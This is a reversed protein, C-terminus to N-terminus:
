TVTAKRELKGWGVHTGRVAAVTSKVVVYYMFQRYAFRQLPMWLLLKWDEKRELVFALVGAALDVVVFLAYFFLTRNLLDASYEAPHQNRQLVAAVLSALMQLDMMPSVLPFLVQFLILNPMAALGLAGFRPRFLTDRQKWAAQLTGFVWRFRQKLLGQVTDPAETWAVAEDQYVIEYGGRLIRMTLDADEALTDDNFGGAELVLDRRWAGVAGPVVTIGNLSDFARRELNQSTIYELAQWRTLLNIRNGVKANGAAAGVRPSRFAQVLRSVTEPDFITDADLAVVIPADTRRLGYNLAAAKGGNPKRLVRVHPVTRFADEVIDATGDTSGDDVVLIDLAARDSDLLANVTRVIVKSENYAPVIVAVPGPWEAGGPHMRRGRARQWLALSGVVVLRVVALGIGVLFLTRLAASVSGITLFAADTLWLSWWDQPPVPPMVADRSLGVLSSVTVLSYGRARLGDIIGPLASLTQSRDGGGDHLLVVHGRGETAGGLTDQVIRAVGPNTWDNPDIGLGITYYGTNSTYLLPNVQDPTEPEIDEAYPPRFLLSRRGIVSELLRETANIELRLQQRTIASIDPHTFTHNGLEHGDQLTRQLLSPNQDANLGIVFFTAPAQRARLVDLIQPTWRPDPGDDFTLAISKPAGTGRREIVYPSPYDLLREDTILGSTADYQVDRRGERPTAVVRLVEGQGEYDVDYGYRLTSLQRAVAEGLRSRQAFVTWVSPDESGLRWLAYGRLTSDSADHVQNFMTVGNLFWVHHLRDRDDFYDYTPNLSDEDLAIHGDSESATRVAEQFSVETGRGGDLWDYGYSGLAVVLKSPPVEEVRKELTQSFWAQSAISGADGDGTHEDYAMLILYDCARALQAYDFAPDDLPVSQSVELGLPNFAAHLERTFQVLHPRSHAPVNEFDLNVGAFNHDRVYALLAAVTERRAQPSGLMTALAESQWDLTANDFNNVLPVIRLAPKARAVFAMVEQQHAPQDLEIRGSGDTLHLWEPMLRDLSQINEKLSTFSTDDWNVFFGTLDTRHSATLVPPRPSRAATANAEVLARRTELYRREAARAPREPRPLAIHHPLPLREDPPLGLAPLAPNVLVMGMGVVFSISVVGLGVLGLRRVWRWRRQEPDYFIPPNSSPM